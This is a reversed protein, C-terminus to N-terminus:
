DRDGMEALTAGTATRPSIVSPLFNFISLSAGLTLSFGKSKM